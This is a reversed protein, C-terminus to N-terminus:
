PFFRNRLAWPNPRERRRRRSSAAEVRWLQAAMDDEDYLRFRRRIRQRHIALVLSELRQQIAQPLESFAFAVFPAWPYADLRLLQVPLRFLATEDRAVVEILIDAVAGNRPDAADLVAREPGGEPFRVRLGGESLSVTRRPQAALLNQAWALEDAAPRLFFAVSRPSQYLWPRPPDKAPVFAFRLRTTVRFFQRRQSPASRLGTDAERQSADTSAQGRGTLQSRNRGTDAQGM